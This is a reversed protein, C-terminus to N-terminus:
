AGLADRHRRDVVARTGGAELVGSADPAATRGATRRPEAPLPARAAALGGRPWGTGLRHRRPPLLPLDRVARGPGPPLDLEVELAEGPAVRLRPLNGAAVGEGDSTLEWTGRLRDLSVFDHRNRILFRRDGVREVHVPQALFKLEALAPHPTRDPWM